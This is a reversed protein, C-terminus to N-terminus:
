SSATRPSPERRSLREFGAQRSTVPRGGLDVWTRSVDYRELLPLATRLDPSARACYELVGFSGRAPALALMLGLEPESLAQAIGDVLSRLRATPLELGPIHGGAPPLPGFLREVELGRARAYQVAALAFPSHVIVPQARTV